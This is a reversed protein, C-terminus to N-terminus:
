IDVIVPRVLCTLLATQSKEPRFDVLKIWVLEYRQVLTSDKDHVRQESKRFDVHQCTKHIEEARWRLVHRHGFADVTAIEEHAETTYEVIRARGHISNM